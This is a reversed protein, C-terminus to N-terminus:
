LEISSWPGITSSVGGARATVTSRDGPCSRGPDRDIYDDPDTPGRRADRDDAEADVLSGPRGLQLGEPRRGSTPDAGLPGTPWPSCSRSTIATAARSSRPVGAPRSRRTSGGPRKVATGSPRPGDHGRRREASRPRFPSASYRGAGRGRRPALRRRRARISARIPFGPDLLRRESANRVVAGDARYSSSACALAHSSRARPDVRQAGPKLHAVCSLPRELQPPSSRAPSPRPAPLAPRHERRPSPRAAAPHHPLEASRGSGARPAPPPISADAWPNIGMLRAAATADVAPFNTGM